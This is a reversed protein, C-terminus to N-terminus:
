GDRDACVRECVDAPLCPHFGFAMGMSHCPYKRHIIGEDFTEQGLLGKLLTTKGSGNKGFLALHEGQHVEFNVSEFLREGNIEKRLNKAKMVLM